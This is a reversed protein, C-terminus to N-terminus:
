RPECVCTANEIKRSTFLFITSGPHWKQLVNRIQTMLLCRQIKSIKQSSRHGNRFTEGVTKPTEMTIGRKIKTKTEHIAGTEQHRIMVESQQQVQHSRRCRHLLRAPVLIQRCNLSLLLYANKTKCLIKKKQKTLHPKQGSAWEYYYGHEECLKELSLVAPTDELLQVTVYLSCSRLCKQTTYKQKWAFLCVKENRQVEMPVM